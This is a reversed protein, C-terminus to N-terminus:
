EDTQKIGFNIGISLRSNGSRNKTVEHAVDPYFFIFSGEEPQIRVPGSKAHIILDGSNAPVSVYYAASLLEDDDDHSHLTTVAGDPMYNFWYGSDLKSTELITNAHACAHFMVKEMEPVHEVNLYINEYRGNFLHTRKVGEDDQHNLFGSMLRQNLRALDECHVTFIGEALTKIQHTSTNM